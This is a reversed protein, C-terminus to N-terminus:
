LTNRSKHEELFIREADQARVHVISVGPFSIRRDISSDPKSDVVDSLSDINDKTMRGSIFVNDVDMAWINEEHKPVSSEEKLFGRRQSGLNVCEEMYGSISGLRKLNPHQPKGEWMVWKLGATSHDIEARMTEYKIYDFFFRNELAMRILYQPFRKWALSDGKITESKMGSLNDLDLVQAATPSEEVFLSM